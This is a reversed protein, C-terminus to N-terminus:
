FDLRWDLSFAQPASKQSKFKQSKPNGAQGPQTTPPKGQAHRSAGHSPGM